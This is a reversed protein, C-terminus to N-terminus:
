WDLSRADVSRFFSNDDCSGGASGSAGMGSVNGNKRGGHKALVLEIGERMLSSMPRRTVAKLERLRQHQTKTMHVHQYYNFSM